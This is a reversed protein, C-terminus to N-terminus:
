YFLLFHQIQIFMGSQMVCVYEGEALINGADDLGNWSVTHFGAEAIRDAITKIPRGGLNYVTINVKSKEPVDFKINLATPESDILIPHLKYKWPISNDRTPILSEVGEGAVTIFYTKNITVNNISIVDYHSDVDIPSYALSINLSDGHNLNISTDSLFFNNKDYNNIKITNSNMSNNSIWFQKKATSDTKVNEFDIHDTGISFSNTLIETCKQDNLGIIKSILESNIKYSNNDIIDFNNECFLSNGSLNFSLLSTPLLMSDPISQFRNNSIDISQISQLIRLDNPITGSLENNELRLMLLKPLFWLELPVKGGFSNDQGFFIELERLNGVTLPIPGVLKNRYIFLSKLSIMKGIEFPLIGSLENNNLWMHQLHSLLSLEKPISGSLKNHDLALRQTINTLKGIEKPINGSLRNRSIDLIQLNKCDGIQRPISGSLSNNQLHLETLNQLQFLEVPISNQFNNNSLNLIRLKSLTGIESPISGNFNNHSLDLIILNNSKTFINLPFGSLQNHSLNITALKNLNGITTPLEGTLNNDSLNLTDLNSFQGIEEILQGSLNNRPLEIGIVRDEHVTIGYWESIPQESLWNTNDIWNHGNMSNYLKALSLSDQAIGETIIIIIIFFYNIKLKRM